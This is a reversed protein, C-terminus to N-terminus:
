YAKTTEPIIRIVSQAEQPSSFTIIVFNKQGFFCFWM